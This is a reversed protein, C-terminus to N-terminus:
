DEVFEVCTLNTWNVQNKSNILMIIKDSWNQVEISRKPSEIPGM